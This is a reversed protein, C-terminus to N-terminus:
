NTLKREFLEKEINIIYWVNQAKDLQKTKIYATSLLIGFENRISDRILLDNIQLWARQKFLTNLTNITRKPNKATDKAALNLKNQITRMPNPIRHNSDSIYSQNFREIKNTLSSILTEDSFDYIKFKNYMPPRIHVTVSENSRPFGRVELRDIIDKVIATTLNTELIALGGRIFLEGSLGTFKKFHKLLLQRIFQGQNYSRQYDDGGLGTRSRLVQLTSKSDKFGFFEIIGMVQSFGGEIYYHIKDIGTIRALESLYKERGRNARVITLKNLGTSDEMGADAYTDRPVSFIEVLGSDLLFSVVHNADAHNSRTDLRNDLGTVAINIRRGRYIYRIPRGAKDDLEYTIKPSNAVSTYIVKETPANTDTVANIFQQEEEKQKEILKTSDIPEVYNKPEEKENSYFYYAVAVVSILLLSILLGAKGNKKIHKKSSM